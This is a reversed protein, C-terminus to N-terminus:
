PLRNLGMSLIAKTREIVSNSTEDNRVGSQCLTVSDNIIMKVENAIRLKQNKFSFVELVEIRLLLGFISHIKIKIFFTELLNQEFLKVAPCSSDGFAFICCQQLM